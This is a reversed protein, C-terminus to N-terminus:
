DLYPHKSGPGPSDDGPTDGALGFAKRAEEVTPYIELLGATGTLQIVKGVFGGVEALKLDGGQKALRKHLGLLVGLGYSTIRTLRSCDVILKRIGLDVYRELEDVFRGANDAM